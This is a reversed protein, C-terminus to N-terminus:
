FLAVDVDVRQLQKNLEYLQRHIRTAMKTIAVIKDEEPVAGNFETMIQQGVTVVRLM